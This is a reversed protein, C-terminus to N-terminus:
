KRVIGCVNVNVNQVKIGTMSLVAASAAEQVAAAITVISQGYSVIINCDVTLQDKEDVRVRIGKGRNKKGVLDVFDAASKSYLGAYGEIDTLAQAIITSIVSESIMVRGNDQVQTIYQKNDAM